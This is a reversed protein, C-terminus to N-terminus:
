SIDSIYCSQNLWTKVDAPLDTPQGSVDYVRWAESGEETPRITLEFRKLFRRIAGIQKRPTKSRFTIVSM